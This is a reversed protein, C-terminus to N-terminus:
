NWGDPGTYAGNPAFMPGLFDLVWPYDDIWGLAYMYYHTPSAFANALLQGTPVPVVSVTLGMTYTASCNNITGAIADMIQEDVTDGTGFYVNIQQPTPNACQGSTLTTCGFSNNFFGSPAATGNEFKFSNLPSQMASLLLSQVQDPNYSYAPQIASNFAGTPPLGPPVVNPAVTGVNNNVDANIETMNVSDAFATRLRLDAFPQFKYYQGTLSNTVNTGFPDFTLGLFPYTGYMSIGNITSTLKNDNLWQARNAIDYLNTGPLDIAMATGSKAANQIDVERTNVDSVFKFIVTAIKPQVAPTLPSGWYGSRATLTIVNTTPNNSAMVYPGTGAMSGQQSVDLYTNGCGTPTSGANCTASLDQLYEDIQTT